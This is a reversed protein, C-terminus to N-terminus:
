RLLCVATSGHAWCGLTSCECHKWAQRMSSSSHFLTPLPRAKGQPSLTGLAELAAWCQFTHTQRKARCALCCCCSLARTHHNHVWPPQGLAAATARICLNGHSLAAATHCVSAPHVDHPHSAPMEQQCRNTNCVRTHYHNRTVAPNASSAARCHHCNRQQVEDSSCGLVLLRLLMPWFRVHHAVGIPKNSDFYALLLFLLLDAAGHCCKACWGAAALGPNSTPLKM